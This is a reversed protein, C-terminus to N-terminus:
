FAGATRVGTARPEKMRGDVEKGYPVEADAM